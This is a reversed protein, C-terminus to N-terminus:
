NSFVILNKQIDVNSFGFRKCIYKITESQYFFVHTPDNRYYWKQFDIESHYISTMCFLKGDENLISRLKEFEKGPHHFHEMVECCAIYDYQNDLLQPYNHFFPDYQAIQYNQDKLLKSIVPGTGAGFDLGQHHPSYNELIGSVIPSVFNQYRIDEVDNNHESYRKIEDLQGPLSNRELFIGRCESCEFYTKPYKQYFLFSPYGCLPCTATKMAAFIYFILHVPV